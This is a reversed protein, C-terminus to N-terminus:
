AGTRLDTQEVVVAATVPVSHAGALPPVLVLVPLPLRAALCPASLLLLCCCCSASGHYMVGERKMACILGGSPRSARLAPQGPKTTELQVVCVSLLLYYRSTDCLLHCSSPLPTSPLYSRSVMCAIVCPMNGTRGGMGDGASVRCIMVNGYGM